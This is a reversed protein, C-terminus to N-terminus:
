LFLIAIGRRDRQAKTAQKLTFKIKKVKVEFCIVTATGGILSHGSDEV